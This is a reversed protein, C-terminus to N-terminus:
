QDARQARHRQRRQHARAAGGLGGGREARNADDVARLEAEGDRAAGTKVRRIKRRQTDRRRVAGGGGARRYLLDLLDSVTHVESPPPDMCTCRDRASVSTAASNGMAALTGAAAWVLAATMVVGFCCKPKAM